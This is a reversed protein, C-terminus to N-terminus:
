SPPRDESALSDSGLPNRGFVYAWELGDFRQPKIGLFPSAEIHVPLDRTWDLVERAVSGVSGAARSAGHAGLVLLDARFRYSVDVLTRAVAGVRMHAVLRVRPSDLGWSVVQARLSLRLMELAVHRPLMEGSPLRYDDSGSEEVVMVVHILALTSGQTMLLARRVALESLSSGDYSIVINKLGDM